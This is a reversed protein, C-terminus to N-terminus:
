LCRQPVSDRHQQLLYRASSQQPRAFPSSIYVNCGSLCVFLYIYAIFFKVWITGLRIVSGGGGGGM